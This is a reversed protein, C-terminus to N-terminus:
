IKLMKDLANFAKIRTNENLEVKYRKEQLSLLVDELTIKKMNECVMKESLMYCTKHPNQKKLAYLVGMETGIIFERASDTLNVYNIIQSTSGVFDAMFLVEKNCEPHMLLPADPHKEKAKKVQELSLYHHVPCHGKGPIIQKDKIQSAIYSALNNDPVFIVKEADLSNVIKLANSSTCCIDSKAKVEASSNIYCVVKADPYKSRMEDIANEDVQEALPCGADKVPILVTKNPALIKATEAMFQVGCFVVINKVTIAAKKSLELSDGVFDAIEQVEDNQYNHALILADLSEKLRLIEKKLLAKEM